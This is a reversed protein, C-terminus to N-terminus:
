FKKAAGVETGYTDIVPAGAGRFEAERGTEEKELAQTASASLGFQAELGQQQTVGPQNIRGQFLPAEQEIQSVGSQVASPNVGMQALQMATDTTMAVSGQAAIGSFQAATAQQELIPTAHKPTLFYSALAGDGNVGFMATFAQRVAPPAYAITAYGQQVRASVESASVDNALLQSVRTSTTLFGKPLGYQHELQAMQTEFNIYTSPLLPPLGAKQRMQIAPFRANFQPTQYLDVLVQQSSAGATIQNWAWTTLNTLGYRKLVTQIIAKATTGVSGFGPSGATASGPPITTM